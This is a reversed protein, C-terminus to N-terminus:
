QKDASVKVILQPLYKGLGTQEKIWDIWNDPKDLTARLIKIWEPEISISFYNLLGQLTESACEAQFMEDDMLEAEIANDMFGYEILAAVMKSERLMHLDPRAKIGRGVQPTGKLIETYLAQGLKLSAGAAEYTLVEVGGNKGDFIGNSANYHISILIVDTKSNGAKIWDSLAANARATRTALPTDTTEASVIVVKFEGTAIALAQLKAVVADNFTNERIVKGGPLTPTRKGATEQGHGGDIILLKSPM